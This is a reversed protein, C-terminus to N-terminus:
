NSKAETGHRAFVATSGDRAVLYVDYAQTDGSAVEMGPSGLPMGPVTLGKADPKEDLLRAIDAAPVHGEVFYGGVRATHCSGMGAPVGVSEKIGALNDVNRVVVKFGNKEMHEVWLHCCGCTENKHVVVLRPDTAMAAVDASEQADDLGAAAPAALASSAMGGGADLRSCGSLTLVALSTLLLALSKMPAITVVGRCFASSKGSIQLAAAQAM